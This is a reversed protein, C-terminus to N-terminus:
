HEAYVHGSCVTRPMGNTWDHESEMRRLRSFCLAEPCAAVGLPCSLDGPTALLNDRGLDAPWKSYPFRHPCSAQVIARVGQVPLLGPWISWFCQVGRRVGKWIQWKIVNNQSVAHVKHRFFFDLPYNPTMVCTLCNAQSKHCGLSNLKSKNPYLIASLSTKESSKPHGM